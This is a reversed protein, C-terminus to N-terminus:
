AACLLGCEIGANAGVQVGFLDWFVELEDRPPDVTAYSIDGALLVLQFPRAKHQKTLEDAVLFGFLQVTGMDATVAAYLSATASPPLPQIFTNALAATTNCAAVYTYSAGPQLDTMVARHISGSWGGVGATYTSRETPVSIGAGYTVTGSCATDMTIFMLQMESLKGATLSLHLQQPLTANAAVAAKLEDLRHAAAERRQAENLKAASSLGCLAVTLLRAM